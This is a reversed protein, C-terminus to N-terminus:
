ALLPEVREEPVLEGAVRRHEHPRGALQGVQRLLPPGGPKGPQPQPRPDQGVVQLLDGAPQRGLQRAAAGEAGRVLGVGQAPEEAQRAGGVAVGGSLTTMTGRLCIWRAACKGPTLLVVTQLSGLAPLWISNEENTCKARVASRALNSKRNRASPRRRRSCPPRM